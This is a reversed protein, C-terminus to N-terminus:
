NRRLARWARHLHVARQLAADVPIARAAGPVTAAAPAEPTVRALRAEDHRVKDPQDTILVSLPLDNELAAYAAREDEATSRVAIDPAFDLGPLGVVALGSGRHPGWLVRRLETATDRNALVFIPSRPSARFKLWAAFAASVEPGAAVYRVDVVCPPPMGPPNPPLDAPLDRIRVYELGEGLDRVRPAARGPVALVALFGLLFVRGRSM